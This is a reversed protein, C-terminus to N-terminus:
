HHSPLWFVMDMVFGELFIDCPSLDPSRPCWHHLAGLPLQLERSARRTSKGPSRVFAQQIRAVNEDTKHPRGSSKGKCLCGNEIFSFLQRRNVEARSLLVYLKRNLLRWRLM